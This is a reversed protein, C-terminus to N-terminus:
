PVTQAYLLDCFQTKASVWALDLCVPVPSGRRSGKTASGVYRVM